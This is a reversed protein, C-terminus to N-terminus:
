LTSSLPFLTSFRLKQAPDFLHSPIKGLASTAKCRIQISNLGSNVTLSAILMDRIILMPISPPILIGLSGASTLLGLSFNERYSDKVLAPFMMSGIAIITVPSSGSIAAFFMCALVTSIALGGPMWGTIARAFAILRKAITGATMISGSVVFFPIALLVNKDTLEFVKEIFISFSALDGYIDPMFFAFCCLSLVGLIVFLPEGLVVLLLIIALLLLIM